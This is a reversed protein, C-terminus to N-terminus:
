KTAAERVIMVGNMVMWHGPFTCLYPYKGPTQPAQFYISFEVGPDVIDTYCLVEDSAPVYQKLYADPTGILRNAADGIRELAGPQILAWNHPVVDPNKFTLKIAEGARVELARESFQLNDRAEIRLERAGALKKQWPNPIRKELWELDRQMPHRLKIALASAANSRDNKSGVDKPLDMEHITAFLECPRDAGVNLWLHLQSCRQLDPIEYFVRRPDDSPHIGRIPLVDHGVAGEHVVSFEKSGYGPSYRYNWAQAFQLSLNLAAEKQVPQAFEVEIGNAYAHFGLPLQVPAGTYRLRELCGADPTYTGWGHMGSVYLSGDVPHIRARHIGSRFEGPLPVAAGQWRDGVRDRLIMMVSGTGFSTHIIRGELPGMKSHRVQLQGGSSNDVGRPLYLLPLEISQNKQPGRYGYFPVPSTNYKNAVNGQSVAPIQCIM